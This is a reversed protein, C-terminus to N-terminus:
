DNGALRKRNQVYAFMERLNKTLRDRDEKSIGKEHKLAEMQIKELDEESIQQCKELQIKELDDIGIINMKEVGKFKRTHFLVIPLYDNNTNLRIKVGIVKLTLVM